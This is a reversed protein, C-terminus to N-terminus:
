HVGNIKQGAATLSAQIKDLDVSSLNKHTKSLMGMFHAIEEEKAPYGINGDAATSNALAKGTAPDVIVFWPIGSNSPMDYQAEVEKAGIMRDQDVKVDVYDKAFLTAIEPQGLWDELRHCWGCWPAGFHLFVKRGSSKAQVMADKLVADAQLRAADHEKLFALVKPADHGAEAGGLSKGDPGKKELSSTEQNAIAKGSGDLVTLYPFGEKALDAGYSEALDMNKRDKGGADVMVVQYEYLLEHSLAKDSAMTGHLLHCWPCWNGGWQILVRQNEKKAKAVAAAIQQRADATEDYIKPKAASRAHETAAPQGILKMPATQNQAHVSGATLVLAFALAIRNM